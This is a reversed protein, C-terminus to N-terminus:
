IVKCCMTLLQIRDDLCMVLVHLSLMNLIVMAIQIPPPPNQDSEDVLSSIDLESESTSQSQNWLSVQGLM